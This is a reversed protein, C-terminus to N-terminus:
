VTVPLTSIGAESRRDKMIMSLFCLFTLAALASLSFAFVANLRTLATNM